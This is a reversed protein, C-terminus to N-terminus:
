REFATTTVRRARRFLRRMSFALLTLMPAAIGKASSSDVTPREGVMHAIADM